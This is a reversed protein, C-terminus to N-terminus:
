RHNHPQCVLMRGGHDCVASCTAMVSPLSLWFWIARLCIFRHESPAAVSPRTTSIRSTCVSPLAIRIYFSTRRNQTHTLMVSQMPRFNLIKGPANRCVNPLHLLKDEHINVPGWM